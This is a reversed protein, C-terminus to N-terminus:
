RIGQYEMEVLVPILPCEVEYCVEAM